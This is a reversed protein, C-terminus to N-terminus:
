DQPPIEEERTPADESLSELASQAAATEATKKSSGTGRGLEKEQWRVSVIYHRAHPPGEESLCEYIPTEDGQAQLKEQLDGKPNDSLLTQKQNSFYPDLLRNITKRSEDWGGDRYIAGLIAEMADALNSSRTRGGNKEEGKGMQLLPGLELTEAVSQLRARNVLKARFRTLDGESQEPFLLYLRETVALQLVADGLYELRQNDPYEQRHEHGFSPHTLAQELLEPHQFRYGLKEQLLELSAHFVPKRFAVNFIPESAL